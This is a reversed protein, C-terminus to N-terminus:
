QGSGIPARRAMPILWKIVSDTVFFALLAVLMLVVGAADHLFGQGAEDGFHFTILVLVIVRAVNAVLAIPLVAAALLANHLADRRGVLYMYMAGVASLSILSHLGSCADAVLMQYQGVTIMVGSRAIPYGVAHLTDVVMASIWQKLSGTLMDLLSGPLPIMFILYFVPFWVVRLGARGKVLLVVSAAVFMQSLFEVSSINLMRGFLYLAVGLAFVSWGVVRDSSGAAAALADRTRWFAWISIALIIPGHGFDETQWLGQAADAYLPLYMALLGTIPLLWGAQPEFASRTLAHSSM